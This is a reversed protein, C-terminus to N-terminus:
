KEEEEWEGLALPELSIVELENECNGCVVVESLEIDDDIDVDEDCFPCTAILTM